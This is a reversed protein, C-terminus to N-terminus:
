MYEKRAKRLIVIFWIICVIFVGMGIQDAIQNKLYYVAFFGYFGYGLCLIGFIMTKPSMYECFQKPRRIRTREEQNILWQPPQGDKKMRVAAAICYIGCVILIFDFVSMIDFSGMNMTGLM